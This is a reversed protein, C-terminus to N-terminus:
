RALAGAVADAFREAAGAAQGLFLSPEALELEILTPAGSDDPVLDVRAYLLRDRGGPVADLAREAVARQAASAEAPDIREEKYLGTVGEDPGTLMAGKRAAHSFRLGEGGDFYVLATEGAEQIARQFPQLMVTRGADLLRRVHAEFAEPGAALEYRGADVSGAGIAPKVVVDTGPAFWGGGPEVFTTPIVPVGAKALDRLYRKDTNWTVVDAPNALTTVGAAWAVFADRRPAYDWASRLVVLDYAAWDAAPDDWAVVDATVGRARLPDLLLRDDPDLDPLRSCTVLAVRSIERTAALETTSTTLAESTTSLAVPHAPGDVAM